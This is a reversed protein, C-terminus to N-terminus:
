ENIETKETCLIQLKIPLQSARIRLNSVTTSSDRTTRLTTKREASSSISKTSGLATWQNERRFLTNVYLFYSVPQPGHHAHYHHGLDKNSYNMYESTDIYFYEKKADKIEFLDRKVNASYKRFYAGFVPAYNSSSNWMFASKYFYGLGLMSLSKWGLAMSKFYGVRQVTELGLWLGFFWSIRNNRVMSHYIHSMRDRDEWSLNNSLLYCKKGDSDVFSYFWDMGDDEVLSERFWPGRSVKQVGGFYGMSSIKNM